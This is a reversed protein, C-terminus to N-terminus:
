QQEQHFLLLSIGQHLLSQFQVPDNSSTTWNWALGLLSIGQHLLSQFKGIALTMVEGHLNCYVSARIFFPNFRIGARADISMPHYVTFQHGSSSPISVRFGLMRMENSRHHVTFQHGSSSPISVPLEHNMRVAMSPMVTFQHGSSSPISVGLHDHVEHLLGHETFQHGSSSPISVNLRSLAFEKDAKLLSIGQHLLSQFGRPRGAPFSSTPICYVSARIFFPNFGVLYGPPVERGRLCYVSARIFFPNFSALVTAGKSPTVTGTFQHGSSSPISVEKVLEHEMLYPVALLSIGQHLLSQFM